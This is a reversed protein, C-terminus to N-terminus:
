PSEEKALVAAKVYVPRLKNLDDAFVKFVVGSMGNKKLLGPSSLSVITNKNFRLSRVKLVTEASIIIPHESRKPEDRRHRCPAIPFIACEEQIEFKDGANPIYLRPM